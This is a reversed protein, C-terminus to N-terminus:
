GMADEAPRFGEGRVQRPIENREVPALKTQVGRLKGPNGLAGEQSM